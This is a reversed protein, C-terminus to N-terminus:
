EKRNRPGGAPAPGWKDIMEDTKRGMKKLFGDTSRGWKEMSSETKERWKRDASETKHRWAASQKEANRRLGDLSSEQGQPAAVGPERDGASVPSELMLLAVVLCFIAGTKKMVSGKM